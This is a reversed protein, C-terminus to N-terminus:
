IAKAFLLDGAVEELKIRGSMDNTQAQWDRGGATIASIIGHKTREGRQDSIWNTHVTKVMRGTIDVRKTLSEFVEEPSEVVISKANLMHDVYQDFMTVAQQCVTAIRNNIDTVNYDGMHKKNVIKFQDKMNVLGNTCVLRYVVFTVQIKSKGTESNRLHIAPMVIDERLGFRVEHDPLTGLTRKLNPMTFRIDMFDSNVNFSETKLLDHDFHNLERLIPLNDVVKYRDSFIARVRNVGEDEFTRIFMKSDDKLTEIGRNFNDRFVKRDREIEYTNKGETTILREMYSSPLDLKICFSQFGTKTFDVEGLGNIKISGRDTAQIDRPLKTVDRKKTEFDEMQRLVEAFKEGLNKKTGLMKVREKQKKKCLIYRYSM